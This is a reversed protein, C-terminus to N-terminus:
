VDRKKVVVLSIALLAVAWGGLILAGQWQNFSGEAISTAVMQQGAASPLFRAADPIWEALGSFLAILIPLVLLLGISTVVGGPTNRLLTGISMAIVAMLALVSGTNLISLLVGDTTISFDLGVPALIPQAVSYSILASGTGVTFAVASIVLNKALVAPIRQPVAVMTSRIMGTAWESAILVVALSAILLQGFMIGASPASLAIGASQGAESALLGADEHSAALAFVFLASLGVMVVATISLLIVTSPVTTVKVWESHLVRAFSVGPLPASARRRGTRPAQEITTTM